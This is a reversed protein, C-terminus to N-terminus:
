PVLDLLSLEQLLQARAEPNGLLDCLRQRFAPINGLPGKLAVLAERLQLLKHLEPVQRAINDPTFDSLSEFNLAIALETQETGRLHNPVAFELRLASEKMVANFNQKDINVCSRQELPLPSERGHLNGVVLLALPLEVEGQQSGTAPLYQINIREKPAVTTEDHRRPM